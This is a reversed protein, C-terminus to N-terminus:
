AQSGNTRVLYKADLTRELREATAPDDCARAAAALFAAKVTEPVPQPDACGGSGPNADGAEDLKEWDLKKFLKFAVQPHNNCPFFLLGPECTVGRAVRNEQSDACDAM